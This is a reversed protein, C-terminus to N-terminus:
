VVGVGIASISETRCNTIHHWKTSLHVETNQTNTTHKHTQLISQHSKTFGQPFGVGATHHSARQPREGFKERSSNSIQRKTKDKNTNTIKHECKHKQTNTYNNHQHTTHSINLSALTLQTSLYDWKHPRLGVTQKNSDFQKHSNTMKNTNTHIQKTQSINFSARVLQTILQEWRNPRVEGSSIISIWRMGLSSYKTLGRERSQFM